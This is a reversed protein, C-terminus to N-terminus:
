PLEKATDKSPNSATLVPGCREPSSAWTVKMDVLYSLGVKMFRTFLDSWRHLSSIENTSHIESSELEMCYSSFESILSHSRTRNVRYESWFFHDRVDSGLFHRGHFFESEKRKSVVYLMIPM